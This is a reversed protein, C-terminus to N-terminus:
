PDIPQGRRALISRVLRMSTNTPGTIRNTQWWCLTAKGGSSWHSARSLFQTRVWPDTLRRAISQTPLWKEWSCHSQWRQQHHHSPNSYTSWTLYTHDQVMRLNLTSLTHHTPWTKGQLTYMLEIRWSERIHTVTQKHCDDRLYSLPM